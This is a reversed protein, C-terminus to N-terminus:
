KLVKLYPMLKFIDADDDHGCIIASQTDMARILFMDRAPAIANKCAAAIQEINADSDFAIFSTPTVWWKTAKVRIAETFSNYREDYSRGHVTGHDLRFTIWYAAM